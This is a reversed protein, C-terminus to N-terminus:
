AKSSSVVGSMGCREAVSDPTLRSTKSNLIWSPECALPPLSINKFFLLNIKMLTQRLPAYFRGDLVSTTRSSMVRSHPMNAFDQRSSPQLLLFCFLISHCRVHQYLELMPVTCAGAVVCSELSRDDLSEAGNTSGDLRVSDENRPAITHRRKTTTLEMFRISTMNLFDQLHMKEEQSGVQEASVLSEGALKAEFSQPLTKAAPSVDKFREQNRPTAVKSKKPSAPQEQVLPTSIAPQVINGTVSGLSFRPPKSMRGTTEAKSPPAPLRVNKVPSRERGKLRKPTHDDEEEDEDLEAPRKGLIGKAGGIALSKRGKLKNTSKKPTMSQIMDKLNATINEETADQRHFDDEREMIDRGSERRVEEAREREVEEEMARPNAFRVNPKFIGQPTFAQAQEGLSTRRDLLAAVRPSGLGERDVGVGSSRRRQPTIVSPMALATTADLNLNLTPVAPKPTHSIREVEAKFLKKPSATRMTINKAPPTKSPTTPRALPRPTLQKSPTTPRKVPTPTKTVKKPTISLRSGIQRSSRRMQATAVIPSGVEYTRRSSPNTQLLLEPKLPSSKAAEAAKNTLPSHTLQGSDTEEEMLQKALSKDKTTLDAPLIAGVATTIDMAYSQDSDPETRETITELIGGMAMTEDMMDDDFMSSEILQENARKAAQEEAPLSSSDARVLKPPSRQPNMVGGLATTFEMTLDENEDISDAEEGIPSKLDQSQIGGVATTFDMTEDAMSSSGGSSRRGATSRRRVPTGSKRPRKKPSGEQAHVQLISGAVQTFDMEEGDDEEGDHNGQAQSALFNAKFAPSFPNLNEQDRSVSLQKVGLRNPKGMDGWPKFSGTLEDDILDMTQDGLEDHEMGRTGAQAAAQRLAANLRQSSSTSSGATSASSAVSQSTLEDFNAGTMTSEGEILDEDSSSDSADAENVVIATQETPEDGGNSSLPSSSFDNPDNFNMPPIGSSRRRKKQHLDRQHEPSAMVLPEEVQEPPTSLAEVADDVPTPQPSSSFSSSSTM